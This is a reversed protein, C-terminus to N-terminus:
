KFFFSLQFLEVPGREAGIRIWKFHSYGDRLSDHLYTNLQVIVFAASSVVTRRTNFCYSIVCTFNKICVRPENKQLFNHFIKLM